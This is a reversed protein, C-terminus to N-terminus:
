TSLGASRHEIREIKALLSHLNGGEIQDCDGTSFFPMKRFMTLTQPFSLSDLCPSYDSGWLLREVGFATQLCKVYPWASMHPYDHSPTTLAYFGSLKVRPGPFQALALPGALAHEAFQQIPPESVAPPLGLHSILVCLTEHRELIPLWTQWYEGRSNVSILWNNAALWTWVEEPTQILLSESEADFLYISIGVFGQSRWSELLTTSLKKLESVFAVAHIWTHQALKEVLFRNNDKCWDEAAYGVVLAATVDHDEAHSEYCAIEDLHIGPRTLFGVQACGEKPFPRHSLHVHADAREFM